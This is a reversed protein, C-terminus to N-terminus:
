TTIRFSHNSKYAARELARSNHFLRTLCPTTPFTSPLEAGITASITGNSLLASLSFESANPTISIPKHLNPPSTLTGHPGRHDFSGELWNITSLDVDYQALIGRIWVAATMADSVVYIIPLLSHSSFDSTAYAILNSLISSQM